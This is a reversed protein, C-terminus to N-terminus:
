QQAGEGEQEDPTQLGRGNTTYRFFKTAETEEVERQLTASNMTANFLVEAVETAQVTVNWTARAGPALTPLPEFVVTTDVLRGTTPGSSSVYSMEAELPCRIVIETAEASGQNIVNIEYTVNEGVRVPDQLDIVELLLASIGEVTTTAESRVEEACYARAIATNTFTAPQQPLYSVNVTASQGPELTGLNWQVGQAVRQGGRTARVDQVDAPLSETLITDRAPADGTNTVVIQYPIRRGLYEQPPADKDIRLVPRIVRVQDPQAEARLDGAANGTAQVEYTGTEAARLPVRYAKAEGANLQGVPVRIQAQGQLTRLNEPLPAAIVVNRAAGTGNNRVTVEFPIEDCILATEPLAQSIALQPQVVNIAACAPIVYTLASCNIIQGQDTAVGNVTITRSEGAPMQPIVWTLTEGPQQVQPEASQFEFNEALRETVVVDAVLVDSVNTVVIRYSFPTGAIVQEPMNKRIRVVGCGECPYTREVENPGLDRAAPTQRAEAQPMTRREIDRTQERRAERRCGAFAVAMAGALLILLARKM